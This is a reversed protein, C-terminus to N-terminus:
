SGCEKKSQALMKPETIATFNFNGDEESTLAVKFTQDVRYVVGLNPHTRSLCVTIKTPLAPLRANFTQGNGVYDRDIYQTINVPKSKEKSDASAIEIVVDKSKPSEGSLNLSGSLNWESDEKNASYLDVFGVSMYNSDQKAQEDTKNVSWLYYLLFSFVALAVSTGAFSFLINRLSGYKLTRIFSPGQGVLSFDTEKSIARQLNDVVYPIDTADTLWHAKQILLSFANSIRVNSIIIPFIKKSLNRALTLEDLVNESKNSHESVILIMSNALEIGKAISNAWNEGAGINKTSIWCKIGRAELQECLQNAYGVDRSSHSIMFTIDAM